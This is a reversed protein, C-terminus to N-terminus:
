LLSTTSTITTTIIIIAIMNNDRHLYLLFDSSIVQPRMNHSLKKGAIIVQPRMNHSLKKGALTRSNSFRTGSKVWKATQM